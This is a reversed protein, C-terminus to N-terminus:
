TPLRKDLRWIKIIMKKHDFETVFTAQHSSSNLISGKTAEYARRKTYEIVLDPTRCVKLWFYPDKPDIM